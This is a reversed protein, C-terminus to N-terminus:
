RQTGDEFTNATSSGYRPFSTAMAVFVEHLFGTGTLRTLLPETLRWRMSLTPLFPM